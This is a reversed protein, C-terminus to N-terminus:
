GPHHLQECVLKWASTLAQPPLLLPHSLYRLSVQAIWVQLSPPSPDHGHPKPPPTHFGTCLASASPWLQPESHQDQPSATHQSHVPLLAVFSLRGQRASPLLSAAHGRHGSTPRLQPASHQHQRRLTAPHPSPRPSPLPVYSLRPGKQNSPLVSAAPCETRATMVRVLFPLMNPSTCHKRYSPDVLLRSMSSANSGNTESRPAPRPRM